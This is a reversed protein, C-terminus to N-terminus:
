QSISCRLKKKIWRNIRNNNFGPKIRIEFLAKHDTMLHLKRGRLDSEFKKIGFVVDLTEKESITYRREIPTLIKSAWQVPVWRGEKDPQLLIAGLGTDCADTRLGFGRNIDIIKM